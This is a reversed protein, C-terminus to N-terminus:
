KGHIIGEIKDYKQEDYIKVNGQEYMEAVVVSYTFSNDILAWQNVIPMFLEFLNKLGRYYRREVIDDGISHGGKKVREAIRDVALEVSSLWFYLLIVEYNKSKAFEITNVLTKSSLTTELAFDVGSYILDNIRKLM